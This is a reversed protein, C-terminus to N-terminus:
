ATGMSSKGGRKAQDGGNKRSAAEESGRGQPHTHRSCRSGGQEEEEPRGGDAAESGPLVYQSPLLDKVGTQFGWTISNVKLVYPEDTDVPDDTPQSTMDSATDEYEDDECVAQKCM